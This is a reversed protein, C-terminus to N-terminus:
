SQPYGERYTGLGYTSAESYADPQYRSSTLWARWTAEAEPTIAFRSRKFDQALAFRLAGPGSGLGPRRPEPRLGEKRRM